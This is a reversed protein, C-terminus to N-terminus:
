VTEVQYLDFEFVLRPTSRLLKTHIAWSTGIIITVITVEVIVSSTFPDVVSALFLGLFSIIISIVIVGIVVTTVIWIKNRTAPTTHSTLTKNDDERLHHHNYGSFVLAKEVITDEKHLFFFKNLTADLIFFNLV